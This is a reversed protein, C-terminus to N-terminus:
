PGACVFASVQFCLGFLICKVHIGLVSNSPPQRQDLGFLGNEEEVSACVCVCVSRRMPMHSNSGYMGLAIALGFFTDPLDIAEALIRIVQRFILRM